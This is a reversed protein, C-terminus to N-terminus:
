RVPSAATDLYKSQAPIPRLYHTDVLEGVDKVSPHNPRAAAEASSGTDASHTLSQHKAWCRAHRAVLRGDCFM